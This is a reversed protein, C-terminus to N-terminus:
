TKVRNYKKLIIYPLGCMLIITRSPSDKQEYQLLLKNIFASMHMCISMYMYVIMGMSICVGVHMCKQVCIPMYMYLYM